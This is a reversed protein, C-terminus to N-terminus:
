AHGQIHSSCFQTLSITSKSYSVEDEPPPPPPLIKLIVHNELPAFHSWDDGVSYLPTVISQRSLNILNIALSPQSWLFIASGQSHLLYIKGDCLWIDCDEGGGKGGGGGGGGGKGRGKGGGKGREKGGGGGEGKGRGEGKGGGEGEGRGEQPSFTLVHTIIDTNSVM